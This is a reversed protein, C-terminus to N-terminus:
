ATCTGLFPYRERALEREAVMSECYGCWMCWGCASQLWDFLVVTWCSCDFWVVTSGSLLGVCWFWCRESELLMLNYLLGVVQLNCVLVLDGASERRYFAFGVM